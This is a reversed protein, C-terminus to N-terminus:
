APDDFPVPRVPPNCLRAAPRQGAALAAAVEAAIRDVEAQEVMDAHNGLWRQAEFPDAFNGLVADADNIATYGGGCSRLIRVM